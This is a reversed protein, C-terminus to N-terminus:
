TIGHLSLHILGGSGIMGALMAGIHGLSPRHVAALWRRMRPSLRAAFVAGLGLIAIVAIHAGVFAIGAWASVATGQSLQGHLMWLMAPGMLAGMVLPKAPVM